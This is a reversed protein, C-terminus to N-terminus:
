RPDFKAVLWRAVELADDAWALAPGSSVNAGDGHAIKVRASVLASVRNKREGDEAEFWANLEEGWDIDFSQVFNILQQPRAGQGTRLGAAIRRHPRRPSVVRCHQDAVDDRVAEILGASRVALYRNLHGAYKERGSFSRVLDALEKLELM